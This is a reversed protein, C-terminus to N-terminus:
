NAMKSRKPTIAESVDVEPALVQVQAIAEAFGAAFDVAAKVEYEHNAAELDTNTKKLNVVEEQLSAKDTKLKEVESELGNVQLKLGNVQLKLGNVQT